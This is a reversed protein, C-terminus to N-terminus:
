KRTNTLVKMIRNNGMGDKIIEITTYLFITNIHQSLIETQLPDIELFCIISSNKLQSIQGLLKKYLYLGNDEAVLASHPERQISKEEDFQKETLYPLNATIIVESNPISLGYNKVMPELLNGRFFKIKTFHKQANKKAIKLAKGSIDTAYAHIPFHITKLISIPICGSGTGVDILVTNEKIEKIAEEVLVETEPRPILTHKNVLFDLGFFEKHRTLQALPTGKTRKTIYKKFTWEQIKGIQWEPHAILFERTKKLTYALLLEADLRGIHASAYTLLQAVQKSM